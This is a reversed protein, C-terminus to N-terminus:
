SVVMRDAVYCVLSSVTLYRLVVMLLSDFDKDFLCLNMPTLWLEQLLMFIDPSSEAIVSDVTPAGQRFGHMNYSIVSLTGSRSNNIAM